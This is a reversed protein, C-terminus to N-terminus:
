YGVIYINYMAAHLVAYKYYAFAPSCVRGRTHGDAGGGVTSHMMKKQAACDFPSRLRGAQPPPRGRGGGEKRVEEM